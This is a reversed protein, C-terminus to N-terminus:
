RVKKKDSTASRATAAGSAFVWKHLQATADALVILNFLGMSVLGFYAGYLPWVFNAHVIWLLNVGSYFFIGARTIAIVVFQIVAIAKVQQLGSATKLDLTYKYQGLGYCIGAALLLSCAVKHYDPEQLMFLNLPIVTTITVLHHMVPLIVWYKVPHAGELIVNPLFTRCTSNVFDYLDWSAAALSGLVFMKQWTEGAEVKAFVHACVHICISVTADNCQFANRM